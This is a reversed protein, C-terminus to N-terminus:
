KFLLESFRFLQYNSFKISQRKSMKRNGPRLGFLKQRIRKFEERNGSRGFYRLLTLYYPFLYNEAIDQFSDSKGIFFERVIEMSQTDQSLRHFHNIDYRSMYSSDNTCDYYYVIDWVSECKQAYFSLQTMVQLDEGINVGEVAKISNDLYLSKRILRGWITHHISPRIMDVVFDDHSDFLPRELIFSNGKNICMAQGTIIDSDGELQKNVLKEVATVELYDDSDVHLVFAGSCNTVATNRAASLGKNHEHRLLITHEKRKPYRDILSTIIAISKDPSCDDVFVYEINEYTQEMLSVVCREVYKEVCYVPILISVTPLSM